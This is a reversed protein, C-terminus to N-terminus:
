FLEITISDEIFRVGSTIKGKGNFSQGPYLTKILESEVPIILNIGDCNIEIGIKNGSNDLQFGSIIGDFELQKGLVFEGWTEKDSGFFFKTDEAGLIEKCTYFYYPYHDSIITDESNPSWQINDISTTNIIKDIEGGSMNLIYIGPGEDGTGFLLLFKGGPSISFLNGDYYGRYMSKEAPLQIDDEINFLDIKLDEFDYDNYSVTVYYLDEKSSWASYQYLRDSYSYPFFGRSDEKFVSGDFNIIQIHNKTADESFSKYLALKLGDSSWVPFQFQGEHASILTSLEGSGLDLLLVDVEDSVVAIKKGDPHWAPYQFNSKYSIQKLNNLDSSITFLEGNKTFAIEEGTPSWCHSGSDIDSFSKIDKTLLNFTFMNNNISYLISPDDKSEPINSVSPSPTEHSLNLSNFPTVTILEFTPTSYVLNFQNFEDFTSTGYYADIFVRSGLLRITSIDVITVFGSIFQDKEINSIIETPVDFLHVTVKNCANITIEGFDIQTVQGKFRFFEGILTLQYDKWATKTFNDLNEEIEDCEIMPIPTVTPTPALFNSTTECGYFLFVIFLLIYYKKRM